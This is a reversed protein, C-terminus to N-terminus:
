YFSTIGIVPLAEFSVLGSVLRGHSPIEQQRSSGRLLGIRGDLDARPVSRTSTLSLMGMKNVDGFRASLNIGQGLDIEQLAETVLVPFPGM